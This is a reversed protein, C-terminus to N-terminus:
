SVMSEEAPGEAYGNKYSSKDIGNLHMIAEYFAHLSLIMGIREAKTLGPSIVFEMTINPEEM